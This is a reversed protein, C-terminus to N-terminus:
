DSSSQRCRGPAAHLGGINVPKGELVGAEALRRMTDTGSTLVMGADPRADLEALRDVAEATTLFFSHVGEPLSSAYLDREWDSAAIRDDVIVYFGLGLRRGWGVIVQGHLLREDIRCVDIPM